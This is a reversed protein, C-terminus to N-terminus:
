TLNVKDARFWMRRGGEFEVLLEGKKSVKGTVVSCPQYGRVRVKRDKM